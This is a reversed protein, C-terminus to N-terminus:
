DHRDLWAWALAVDDFFKVSAVSMRIVPPSGGAMYAFPDLGDRLPFQLVARDLRSRENPLLCAYLANQFNWKVNPGYKQQRELLVADSYMRFTAQAVSLAPTAATLALALEIVVISRLPRASRAHRHSRATPRTSGVRSNRM